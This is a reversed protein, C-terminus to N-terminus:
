IFSCHWSCSYIHSWAGSPLTSTSIKVYEKGKNASMWTTLLELLHPLTTTSTQWGSCMRWMWNTCLNICPNRGLEKLLIQILFSALLASFTDMTRRLWSSNKIGVDLSFVKSLKGNYENGLSQTFKGSSFILNIRLTYSNLRDRLSCKMSFRDRLTM